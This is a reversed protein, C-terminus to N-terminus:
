DDIRDYNILCRQPQGVLALPQSITAGAMDWGLLIDSLPAQLQALCSAGAKLGNSSPYARERSLAVLLMIPIGLMRFM